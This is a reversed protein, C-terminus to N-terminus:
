PVYLVSPAGPVLVRGDSLLVPPLGGGAVLSPPTHSYTDTSPDYLVQLVGSGLDGAVLVQDNRLLIMWMQAIAGAGSAAWSELANFKGTSPDYIEAVTPGLGDAGGAVLVKDNSLLMSSFGTRPIDMSGTTTFKGTTPDYIEASGLAEAATASLYGKDGGAVLVRGDPLVVVQAEERPTTMSGTADFKDAVPDYIEASTLVRTGQRGGVFLVRGDPLLAAAQYCRSVTMSGALTFKGTTPDYLETRKTTACGAILVRGNKLLTATHGGRGFALSGTLSWQGTAPDYIEASTNAVGTTENFGGVVLARGDALLTSTAGDDREVLLSGTQVFTGGGDRTESPTPAPSLSASAAM